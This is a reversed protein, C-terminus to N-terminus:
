LRRERAQRGVSRRAADGLLRKADRATTSDQLVLFRFPQRNSGSPARTAAFFIDRLAADPIPDDTYRRISRTTTLGELLGVTDAVLPDAPVSGTRDADTM